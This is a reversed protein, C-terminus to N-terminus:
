SQLNALALDKQVKSWIWQEGTETLPLAIMMSEPRNGTPMITSRSIGVVLDRSRNQVLLVADMPDGSRSRDAAFELRSLENGAARGAAM